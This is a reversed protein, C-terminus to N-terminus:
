DWLRRGEEERLDYTKGVVTDPCLETTDSGM